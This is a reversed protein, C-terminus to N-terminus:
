GGFDFGSMLVFSTEIFAYIYEGFFFESNGIKGSDRLLVQEKRWVPRVAYKAALHGCGPYLFDATKQRALVKPKGGDVKGESDVGKAGSIGIFYIQNLNPKGDAM